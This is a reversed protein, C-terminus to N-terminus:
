REGRLDEVRWPGESVLIEPDGTILVADHDIATAVAFADALSMAHDAKIAAAHLARDISPLDLHVGARLDRVVDHAVVSGASRATIYFVEAVNIWSM